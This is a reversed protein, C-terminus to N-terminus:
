IWPRLSSKDCLVKFQRYGVTNLACGVEESLPFGHEKPGPRKKKKQRFYTCAQLNTTGFINCCRIKCKAGSFIPPPPPPPSYNKM